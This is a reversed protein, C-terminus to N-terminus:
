TKWAKVGLQDGLKGNVKVLGAQLAHQLRAVRKVLFGPKAGLDAHGAKRIASSTMAIRDSGSASSTVEANAFGCDAVLRKMSDVTYINLHRPPDLAMWDVKHIRHGLGGANPTLMTLSGGPKLIRHCERLTTHPDPLHEIVHSLTVADFSADAFNQETIDGVHVTLGKARAAEAAKADFEVGVTEWGLESLTWLADGSGCGVDLVRQPRSDRKLHFVQDDIEMKRRRRTAFLAALLRDTASTPKAGYRTELYARKAKSLKRDSKGHTFYDGYIEGLDEPAPAPDLWLTECQTDDCRKITWTGPASFLRDPLDKYLETGSSGCAICHPRQVTRM